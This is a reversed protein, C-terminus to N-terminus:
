KSPLTLCMELWDSRSPMKKDNRPFPHISCVVVECVIMLITRISLTIRWDAIHNNIVYLRIDLSHYYFILGVLIATSISILPRILTRITTNVENFRLETDIVMLLLGFVAIICMIDNVRRRRFHLEKREILQHKMQEAAKHEDYDTKISPRSMPLSAVFEIATTMNKKIHEDIM